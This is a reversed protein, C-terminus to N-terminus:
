YFFFVSYRLADIIIDIAARQRLPMLTAYDAPAYIAMAHTFCANHLLCRAAATAVAAAVDADDFYLLTAIFILLELLLPMSAAHFFMLPSVGAHRLFMLTFASKRPMTRQPTLLM